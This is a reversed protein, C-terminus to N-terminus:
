KKIDKVTQTEPDVAPTTSNKLISSGSKKLTSISKYGGTVNKVKFGRQNLIRTAIYGRLGVQCYIIINKDKDLEDARLRLEDVPINLAGDIHGNNFETVTRVDLLTEDMIESSLLKEPTIVDM